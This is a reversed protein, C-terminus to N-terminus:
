GGNVNSLRSTVDLQSIHVYLLRTLGQTASRFRACSEAGKNRLEVAKQVEFELLRGHSFLRVSALERVPERVDFM